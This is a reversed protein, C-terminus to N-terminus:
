NAHIWIIENTHKRVIQKCGSVQLNLPPGEYFVFCPEMCIMNYYNM